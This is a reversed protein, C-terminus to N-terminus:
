AWARATQWRPLLVERSAAPHAMNTEHVYVDVGKDEAPCGGTERPGRGSTVSHPGEDHVGALWAPLPLDRGVAQEPLVTCAGCLEVCVPAATLGRPELM